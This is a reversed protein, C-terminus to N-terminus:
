SGHLARRSSLLILSTAFSRSDAFSDANMQVFLNGDRGAQTASAPIRRRRQPRLGAIRAYRHHHRRRQGGGDDIERTVARPLNKPFSSDRGVLYREGELASCFTGIRGFVFFPVNGAPNGTAGCVFPGRTRRGNLFVAHLERLDSVEVPFGPSRLRPVQLEVRDGSDNIIEQLFNTMGVPAFRLPLRWM